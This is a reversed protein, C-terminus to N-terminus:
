LLLGPNAPEDVRVYVFEGGRLFAEALVPTLSRVHFILDRLNRHGANRTSVFRDNPYVIGQLADQIPKAANDVDLALAEEFFYIIQLKVESKVPRSLWRKRAERKVRAIYAQLRLRNKAQRSVPTGIVVFEFPLKNVRDKKRESTQWKPKRGRRM